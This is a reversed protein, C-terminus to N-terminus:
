VTEKKQSIEEGWVEMATDFNWLPSDMV